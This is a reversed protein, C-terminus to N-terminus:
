GRIGGYLSENKFFGPREAQAVNRDVFREPRMIDANANV